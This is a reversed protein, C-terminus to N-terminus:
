SRFHVILVLNNIEVYANLFAPNQVLPVYIYLGLPNNKSQTVIIQSILSSVISSPIIGDKSQANLLNVIKSHINLLTGATQRVQGVGSEKCILYIAKRNYDKVDVIYTPNFEKVSIGNITTLGTAGYNLYQQGQGNTLIVNVGQQIILDGIGGPTIDIWDNPLVSNSIGDLLIDNLPNYPYNNSATVVAMACMVSAVTM